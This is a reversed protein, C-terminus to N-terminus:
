IAEGFHSGLYLWLLEVDKSAMKARDPTLYIRTGSPSLIAAGMVYPGITGGLAM